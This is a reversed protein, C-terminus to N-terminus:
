TSVSWVARLVVLDALLLAVDGAGSGLDLVRMGATIGAGMLFQRTIPGYLQNQAILRQTEARTRGLAYSDSTDSPPGSMVRM